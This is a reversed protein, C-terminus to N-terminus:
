PTGSEKPVASENIRGFLEQTKAKMQGITMKGIVKLGEELPVYQGDDDVVFVALLKRMAKISGDEAGVLDDVEVFDEIRSKSVVLNLKKNEAMM